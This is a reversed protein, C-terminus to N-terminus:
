TGDKEIGSERKKLEAPPEPLPRWHTVFLGTSEHQWHPDPDHSFYTLTGIFRAGLDDEERYFGYYALVPKEDEPLRDEANIWAERDIHAPHHSYFKVGEMKEAYMSILSPTLIHGRVCLCWYGGWGEITKNEVEAWVPTPKEMGMLQELTLPVMKTTDVFHDCAGCTLGTTSSLIKVRGDRDADVLERLRALDYNEGLIDTLDCLQNFIMQLGDFTGKDLDFVFDMDVKTPVAPENGIRTVLREVSM